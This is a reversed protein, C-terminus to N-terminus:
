DLCPYEEIGNYEFDWTTAATLSIKKRCALIGIELYSFCKGWIPIGRLVSKARKMDALLSALRRKRFATWGCLWFLGTGMSAVTLPSEKDYVFGGEGLVIQEALIHLGSTARPNCEIVYLYEGDDIFDFSVQGHFHQKRVFEEVFRFIREDEYAEFYLSASQRLRYSAKYNIQYIVKGDQCLAYSCISEGIIKEQQVWPYTTSIPLGQCVEVTPELIVQEGFRSFVPKVISTQLSEVDLQEWRELLRTSPFRIGESEPLFAYVKQKHHLDLLLSTEPLLCKQREERTLEVQALYFSDECTPILLDVQALLSRIQQSYLAFDSKPSVIQHYTTGKLFRTLPFHLSDCVLVEHGQHLLLRAWELSVPARAATVLVKM